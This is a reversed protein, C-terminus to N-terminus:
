ISATGIIRRRTARITSSPSASARTPAPGIGTSAYQVTARAAHAEALTPDFALAREAEQKAKAYAEPPPLYGFGGLLSYADALRRLCPSARDQQSSLEFLEISKM